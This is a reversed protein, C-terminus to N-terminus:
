PPPPPRHQLRPISLPLLCPSQTFLKFFVHYRIFLDFPVAENINKKRGNRKVVNVTKTELSFLGPIGKYVMPGVGIRTRDSNKM